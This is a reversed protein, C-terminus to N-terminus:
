TRNGKQPPSPPELDEGFTGKIKKVFAPFGTIEDKRPTWVGEQWGTVRLKLAM